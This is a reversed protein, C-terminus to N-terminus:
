EEEFSGPKGSFGMARLPAFLEEFESGGTMSERLKAGVGVFPNLTEAV